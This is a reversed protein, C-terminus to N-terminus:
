VAVPAVGRRNLASIRRKYVVGGPGHAKRKQFRVALRAQRQKTILYPLLTGLFKAAAPGQLCWSCCPHNRHPSGDPQGIAGGFTSQLRRLMSMDTNTVRVSLQHYERVKYIMINGEGDLLGAMYQPLRLQHAKGLYGTPQADNTRSLKHKFAVRVKVAKAGLHHAGVPRICQKQFALALKAQRRKVRLYPYVKALFASAVRSSAAWYWCPRCRKVRKNPTQRCVWGGFRAKFWRLVAKDTSTIRVDLRYTSGAQKAITIGGEGDFLGAAYLLDGKALM